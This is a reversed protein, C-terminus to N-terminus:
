LCKYYPDFRESIFFRVIERIRNEDVIDDYKHSCIWESDYTTKYKLYMNTIMLMPSILEKNDSRLTIYTSNKRKRVEVEIYLNNKMYQALVKFAEDLAIAYCNIVGTNNSNQNKRENKREKLISNYTEIEETSMDRVNEERIYFYGCEKNSPMAFLEIVNEDVPIKGNKLWAHVTKANNPKEGYTGKIPHRIVMAKQVTM